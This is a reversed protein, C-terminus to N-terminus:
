LSVVKFSQYRAMVTLTLRYLDPQPMKILYNPHKIKHLVSVIGKHCRKKSKLRADPFSTKAAVSSNHVAIYLAFIMMNIAIENTRATDPTLLSFLVM